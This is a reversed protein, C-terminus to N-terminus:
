ARAGRVQMMGQPVIPSAGWRNRMGAQNISQLLEAVQRAALAAGDTDRERYALHYMAGAIYLDPHRDLLWNSVAADSLPTLRAYYAMELTADGVPVVRIMRGEISYACPVGSYGGYTSVISAPSMSKLIRDPTGEFFLTRMALFDVPLPNLEGTVMLLARTEMEPTRLERNFTAEAKRLARDIAAQSYDADDLLDRLEAVLDAYNTIAGAAFSPIIIAM